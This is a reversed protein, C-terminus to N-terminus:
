AETCLLGVENQPGFSTFGAPLDSGTNPPAMTFPRPSSATKNARKARKEEATDAYRVQLRGDGNALQKGAEGQAVPVILASGCVCVCM